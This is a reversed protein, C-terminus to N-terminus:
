ASVETSATSKLYDLIINKANDIENFPIRLLNIGNSLCYDNKIKDRKKIERFTSEGGWFEIPKFHQEGDVEICYEKNNLLFYFDFRLKIKDKCNEFTKQTEYNIHLNDLIKCMKLELSSKSIAPHKVKGNIFGDATCQFLRDYDKNNQFVGNYKWIYVEKIGIYETSIIEYDPRELKCFLKINDLSYPNLMSFKATSKHMKLSTVNTFYKYGLDDHCSINIDVGKYDNLNDITLGYEKFIQEVENINKQLSKAIRAGKCHKCRRGHTFHNWWIWTPEHENPCQLLAWQQKQYGKDIRKEDLVIYGNANEDCYRQMKELNWKNLNSGM